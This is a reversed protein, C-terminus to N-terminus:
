QLHQKPELSNSIRIVCAPVEFLARSEAGATADFVRSSDRIVVWATPWEPVPPMQFPAGATPTAPKPLGFALCGGHWAAEMGPESGGLEPAQLPQQPCFPHLIAYNGKVSCRSIDWIGALFKKM